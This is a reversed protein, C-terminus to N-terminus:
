SYNCDRLDLIPQSVPLTSPIQHIKRHVTHHRDVSDGKKHYEYYKSMRISLCESM